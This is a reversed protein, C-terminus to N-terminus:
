AGAQASAAVFRPAGSLDAEIRSRAYGLRQSLEIASSTQGSAMEVVVTGNRSLWKLAETFIHEVCELGNPGAILAERPEWDRVSSPLTEGERIYPPNSIILDIKGVLEGPLASFWSGEILRVRSAARGLGALNSRAVAIAGASVDTAIVDAMPCEVALALAIAGSGTGLDVVVPRDRGSRGLEGLAIDVITETEPRPILVRRDIALDLTRFAWRGLVYQIPEGALRRAAMADLAVVGRIRAPEESRMSWEGHAIGSAEEAMWRAEMGASEIGVAALEFELEETLRRWQVADPAAAGAETM